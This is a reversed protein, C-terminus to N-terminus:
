STKLIKSSVSFNPLNKSHDQRIQSFFKRFIKTKSLFYKELNFFKINKAYTIRKKLISKSCITKFNM